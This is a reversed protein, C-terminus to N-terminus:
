IPHRKVMICDYEIVALSQDRNVPYMGTIFYNFKHFKNLVDYANPMADYIPILAVESQLIKINDLCGLAGAFVHQDFGQTDMKLMYKKCGLDQTLEQWIDDLRHLDVRTPTVDDLSYWVSKSYENATLFSSFVTFKNHVNLIKEENRDGLAYNYCHWKEDQDCRTHLSAFASPNPEFSIIHGTYGLKRLFEGYQGTNAGVDLICDISHLDILTSLHMSLNDHLLTATM